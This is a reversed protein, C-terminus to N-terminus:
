VSPVQREEDSQTAQLADRRPLALLRVVLLAPFQTFAADNFELVRTTTFAQRAFGVRNETSTLEESLSRM